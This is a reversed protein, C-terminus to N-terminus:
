AKEIEDCQGKVKVIVAVGDGCPLVATELCDLHKLTYLYERMRAHITRNRRPVAFRSELIEGDQLVNDSVLMWTNAERPTLRAQHFQGSEPSCRQIRGTEVRSVMAMQRDVTNKFCCETSSPSAATTKDMTSYKKM